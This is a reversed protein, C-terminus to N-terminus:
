EGIIESQEIPSGVPLSLSDELERWNGIFSKLNESLPNYRSAAQKMTTRVQNRRRDHLHFRFLGRFWRNVNEVSEM